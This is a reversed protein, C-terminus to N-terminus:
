TSKTFTLTLPSNTANIIPTINETSLTQLVSQQTNGIKYYSYSNSASVLKLTEYDNLECTVIQIEFYTIEFPELTVTTSQEGENFKLERFLSKHRTVYNQININGGDPKKCVRYITFESVYDDRFITDNDIKFDSKTLLVSSVSNRFNIDSLAYVEGNTKVTRTTSTNLSIGTDTINLGSIMKKDTSGDYNYKIYWLYLYNSNLKFSTDVSSSKNLTVVKKIYKEDYTYTFSLELSTETTNILVTISETSLGELYDQSTNYANCFSYVGSSKPLKYDTVVTASEGVNLKEFYTIEFPELTVSTSSENIELKRFKTKNSNVYDFVSTYNSKECIQYINVESVYDNRFISNNGIKFYSKKLTESSKIGDAFTITAINVESNNTININDDVTLTLYPEMNTIHLNNILKNATSGDYSYTIYCLYIYDPDLNFIEDSTSQRLTVIRKVYNVPEPEENENFIPGNKKWMTLFTPNRQNRILGLPNQDLDYKLYWSM